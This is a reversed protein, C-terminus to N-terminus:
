RALLLALLPVLLIVMLIWYAILYPASSSKRGCKPCSVAFGKAIQSGCSPCPRLKSM